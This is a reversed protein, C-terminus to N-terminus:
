QQPRGRTIKANRIRGLRALWRNKDGVTILNNVEAAALMGHAYGSSSGQGHGRIWGDNFPEIRRLERAYLRFAHRIWFIARERRLVEGSPPRKVRARPAPSALAPTM